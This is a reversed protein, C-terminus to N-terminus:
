YQVDGCLTPTCVPCHLVAIPRQYRFPYGYDYSFFEPQADMGVGCVRCIWCVRVCVCVIWLEGEYDM